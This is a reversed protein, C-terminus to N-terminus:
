RWDSVLARQAARYAEFATKEERVGYFNQVVSGGMYDERVQLGDAFAAAGFGAIEGGFGAAARSRQEFIEAIADSVRLAEAMLRGEEAVLGDGLARFFNRGANFGALRLFLDVDTMMRRLIAQVTRSLDEIVGKVTDKIEIFKERFLIVTEELVEETTTLFVKVKETMQEFAYVAIKLLKEFVEALSKIIKIIGKLKDAITLREFAEQVDRAGMALGDMSGGAGETMEAVAGMAEAMKNSINDLGKFFEDAKLGITAYLEFINM